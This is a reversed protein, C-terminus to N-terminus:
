QPLFCLKLQLYGFIIMSTPLNLIPTCSGVFHHPGRRLQDCQVDQGSPAAKEKRECTM